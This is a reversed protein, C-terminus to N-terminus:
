IRSSLCCCSLRVVYTLCFISARAFTINQEISLLLEIFFQSGLHSLVLFCTRLNYETNQGVSLLLEIFFQSGLHSLILFHTRLNYEARCIVVAWYDIDRFCLRKTYSSFESLVIYKCGVLWRPVCNFGTDLDDFRIAAFSWARIERWICFWHGRYM